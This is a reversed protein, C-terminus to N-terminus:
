GAAPARSTLGADPECCGPGERAKTFAPDQPAWAMLTGASSQAANTFPRPSEERWLLLSHPLLVRM